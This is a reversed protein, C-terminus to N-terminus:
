SPFTAELTKHYGDVSYGEDTTITKNKALFVIYLENQMTASNTVPLLATDLSNKIVAEIAARDSSHDGATPYPVNTNQYQVEM